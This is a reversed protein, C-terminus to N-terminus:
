KLLADIDAAAKDMVSDPDDSHQTAEIWAENFIELARPGDAGPFNLWPGVLNFQSWPAAYPPTDLLGPKLADDIDSRVPMYGIADVAYDALVSPDMTCKLAEWAKQQRAEPAFMAIGAGGAGTHVEGGDKVAPFAVTTWPFTSKAFSSIFSSSGVFMGVEGAAFAQTGADEDGAYASGSSYLANIHEIATDGADDNFVSANDGDVLETGATLLYQLPVWGEQNALAIGTHGSATITAAADEVAGWSTLSAPDVGAASLIDSNVFIAPVSIGWPIMFQKGDAAGAALAPMIDSNVVDDGTMFPTLDTVFDNTELPILSNLGEVVLDPANGAQAEAQVKLDLEGYTIDFPTVEVDVGNAACVEAAAKMAPEFSAPYPVWIQIPSDDSAEAQAACGTLALAGIALAALAATSRRIPM